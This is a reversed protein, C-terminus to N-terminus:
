GSAPEDLLARARAVLLRASGEDTGKALAKTYDPLLATLESRTYCKEIKLSFFFARLGLADVVTDNMFKRATRFREVEPMAIGDSTSRSAVPASLEVLRERLLVDIFDPPASLSAAAQQLQGVNMGGDIMILMTRLARPLKRARSKIEESGAATKVLLDTAEM